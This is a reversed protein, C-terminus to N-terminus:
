LLLEFSYNELTFGYTKTNRYSFYTEAATLAAGGSGSKNDNRASKSNGGGLRRKGEIEIDHEV